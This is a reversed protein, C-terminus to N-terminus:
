RAGMKMVFHPHIANRDVWRSVNQILVSLSTLIEQLNRRAGETEFRVLKALLAISPSPKGEM